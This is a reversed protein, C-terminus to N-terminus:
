GGPKLLASLGVKAPPRGAATSGLGIGVNGNKPAKLGPRDRIIAEVVGGVTESDIAGDEARLTDLTAGHLWVDSAVALGGQAALREVQERQMADVQERLRDRETQTERLQRRYTAAERSLLRGDEGREREGEPTGEPSAGSASAAEPPESPAEPLPATGSAEVREIM